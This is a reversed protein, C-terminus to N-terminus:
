KFNIIKFYLREFYKIYEYAYTNIHEMPEEDQFNERYTKEFILAAQQDILIKKYWPLKGVMAKYINIFKYATIEPHIIAGDTFLTFLNHITKNELFQNPDVDEQFSIIQNYDMLYNSVESLVEEDINSSNRAFFSKTEIKNGNEDFLAAIFGYAQNQYPKTNNFLPIAPKFYFIKLLAIKDKNEILDNIIQHNINISNNIISNLQAKPIKPLDVNEYDDVLNDGHKNYIKMKTEFDISPLNFISKTPIGKWCHGIFDCDYPSHCHTGIKIKPSHKDSLIEIQTNIEDGIDDYKLECEKSVDIIVFLSNIDLSDNYVYDPNIHILNFSKLDLGSEKIVFNQLAADKFYTPSLKISSKVEYAHWGDEKKVLIDLFVLTNHKIFGAEYIITEGSSIALATKEIAKAYARPSKAGCDIGEPFLKQAFLGVRTGRTFTAVREPPMRDRLFYRNKYLYLAKLM